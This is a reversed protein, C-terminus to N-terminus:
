LGKVFPLIYGMAEQFAEGTFGHGAGHIVHLEGRQLAQAARRSYSLDVMTDRDGHLVLTRMPLRALLGYFDLNWGDQAYRRGVQIWRGFMGYTEPVAELSSFRRHLDDVISLAPYLLILGAVEEPRRSAACLSAAGGQSGGLYIVRNRDVFDWTGAVRTIALLDSAETLVSMSTSRGDSRNEVSPISGGRFDFTYAAVGAQALARAYPIGSVHSSGLEHAFIVLPFPGEGEPRYTVGYLRDGGNQCWLEQTRYPFPERPEM